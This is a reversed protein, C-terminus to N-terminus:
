LVEYKYGYKEANDTLWTHIIDNIKRLRLIERESAKAEGRRIMGDVIRDAKGRV